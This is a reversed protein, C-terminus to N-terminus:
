SGAKRPKGVAFSAALLAVSAVAIALWPSLHVLVIGLGVIGLAALLNSLM